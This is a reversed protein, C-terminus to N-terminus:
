FGAANARKRARNKRRADGSTEFLRKVILGKTVLALDKKETPRNEPCEL